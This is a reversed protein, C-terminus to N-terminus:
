SIAYCVQTEINAVETTKALQLDYVTQAAAVAAQAAVVREADRSRKTNLAGLKAEKVKQITSMKVLCKAAMAAAKTAKAECARLAASTDGGGLLGGLLNGACNIATNSLYSNRRQEWLEYQSSYRSDTSAIKSDDKDVLKQMKEANKTAKNLAKEASKELKEAQKTIAKASKCASSTEASAYNLGLLTSLFLSFVFVTLNRMIVEVFVKQCQLISTDKKWSSILLCRPKAESKKRVSEYKHCVIDVKLM